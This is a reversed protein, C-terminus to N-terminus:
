QRTTKLTLGYADALQRIAEGGYADATLEMFRCMTMADDLSIGHQECFQNRGFECSGTLVNHLKFLETNPIIENPDPHAKVTDAIREGLPKALLAKATADELAQRLTGGHAFSNDVRAIYCPVKISNDKITFGQAYNGHVATIATPVKDIDYLKYGDFEEIGSGYGDGYGDGSGDGYGSGDGSGSGYGYGYGDGSGYGYGSGYGSGDGDGSGYGSGDGDGYGYGSGSGSGDGYGSGYGSGIELFKKIKDELGEM